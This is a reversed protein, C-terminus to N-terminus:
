SIKWAQDPCFWVIASAVVVSLLELIEADYGSANILVEMMQNGTMGARLSSCTTYGADILEGDSLYVVGSFLEHIGDVYNQETTTLYSGSFPQTTYAPKPATTRPAKTTTSDEVETTPATETIYYTKSGCGILSVSAVVAVLFKHM